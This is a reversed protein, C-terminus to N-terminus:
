VLYSLSWSSTPPSSKQFSIIVASIIIISFRNTSSFHIKDEERRLDARLEVLARPPFGKGLFNVQFDSYVRLFCIKSPVTQKGPWRYPWEQTHCDVSPLNFQFPSPVQLPEIPAITAGFASCKNPMEAVTNSEVISLTAHHYRKLGPECVSSSYVLRSTKSELPNAEATESNTLSM